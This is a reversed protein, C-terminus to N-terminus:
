YLVNYFKSNGVKKSLTPHGAATMRPYADDNAERINKINQTKTKGTKRALHWFRTGNKPM